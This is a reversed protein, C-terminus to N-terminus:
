FWVWSLINVDKKKKKLNREWIDGCMFLCFCKLHARLYWEFYALGSIVVVSVPIVHVCADNNQSIDSFSHIKKNLKKGGWYTKKEM